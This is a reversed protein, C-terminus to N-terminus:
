VVRIRLDENNYNVDSRHAATCQGNRSVRVISIPLFLLLIKLFGYLIMITIYESPIQYLTHSDLKIIM